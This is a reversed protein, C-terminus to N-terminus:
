SLRPKLINCPDTFSFDTTNSEELLEKFAVAEEFEEQNLVYFEVRAPHLWDGIDDVHGLLKVAKIAFGTGGHFTIKRPTFCTDQM